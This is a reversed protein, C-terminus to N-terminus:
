HENHTELPRWAAELECNCFIILVKAFGPICLIPRYGAPRGRIRATAQQGGPLDAPPRGVPRSYLGRESRSGCLSVLLVLGSRRGGNLGDM